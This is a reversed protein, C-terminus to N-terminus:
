SAETPTEGGKTPVTGARAIAEEIFSEGLALLSAIASDIAENRRDAARRLGTPYLADGLARVSAAAEGLTVTLDHRPGLRVSLRAHLADLATADVSMQSALEYVDAHLVANRDAPIARDLAVAAEDLLRRLDALDALERAHALAERQRRNTTWATIAAVAVIAAPGVTAALIGETSAIVLV